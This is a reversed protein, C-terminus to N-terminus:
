TTSWNIKRLEQHVIWQGERVSANEGRFPDILHFSEVHFVDTGKRALEEVHWIEDGLRARVPQVNRSQDLLLTTVSYAIGAPGSIFGIGISGLTNLVPFTEGGALATNVSTRFGDSGLNFTLLKRRYSNTTRLDIKPDPKYGKLRGGEFTADILCFRQTEVALFGSIVSHSISPQKKDSLTPLKNILIMLEQTSYKQM